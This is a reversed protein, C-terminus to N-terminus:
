NSFAQNFLEPSVQQSAVNGGLGVDGRSIIEIQGFEVPQLGFNLADAIPNLLLAANSTAVVHNGQGLPRSLGACNAACRQFLSVTVPFLSFHTERSHPANYRPVLIHKHLKQKDAANREDLKCCDAARICRGINVYRTWDSQEGEM